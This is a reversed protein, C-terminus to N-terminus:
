DTVFAYPLDLPERAEKLRIVSGATSRASYGSSSADTRLRRLSGLSSQHVVSAKTTRSRSSPNRIAAPRSPATHVSGQSGSRSTRILFSSSSSSSSTSYTDPQPTRQVTETTNISAADDRHAVEISNESETSMIAEDEEM